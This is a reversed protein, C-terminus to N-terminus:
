SAASSPNDLLAVPEVALKRSGTFRERLGPPHAPPALADLDGRHIDSEVAFFVHDRRLVLTRHAAWSGSGAAMLEDAELAAHGNPSVFVVAPRTGLARYRSQALSWGCLFGDYALFKERNYSPRATLDIEILLDFTLKLTRYPARTVPRTQDGTATVESRDLRPTRLCIDPGRSRGAPGWRVSAKKCRAGSEAGLPVNRLSSDRGKCAFRLVAVPIRVQRRSAWARLERSLGTWM